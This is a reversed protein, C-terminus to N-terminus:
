RICSVPASGVVVTRSDPAIVIDARRARRGMRRALVETILSLAYQGKAALRDILPFFCADAQHAERGADSANGLRPGVSEADTALKNAAELLVRRRELLMRGVNTFKTRHGSRDFLVVDLEEELKQM